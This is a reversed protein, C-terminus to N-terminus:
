AHRGRTDHHKAQFSFLVDQLAYIPHFGLARKAASGDAVCPYKLFHIHQPPLEEINLHWLIANGQFFLPSPIPIRTKGIMALARSLPLVGDGVINFIGPANKEIALCFARLVDHEHVFQVLPDFGMVTPIIPRRLLHTKYNGIHPGLITCPRLITVVCEPHERAFELCQNEVAIKDRLFASLVGGRPRHSETLFNPNTPHAGYVETTSSVILKKVGAAGIAHLLYMTGISLLEHSYEQDRKPQSHLAAHVVTDCAHTRFIRALKEHANASTLDVCVYRLRPHQCPPAHRDIAVVIDNGPAALLHQLVMHGIFGTTGTIATNM